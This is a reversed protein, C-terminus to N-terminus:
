RSGNRATIRVVRAMEGLAWLAIVVGIGLPAVIIVDLVKAGADIWL